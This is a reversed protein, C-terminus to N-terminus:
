DQPGPCGDETEGQGAEGQCGGLAQSAQQAQCDPGDVPTQHGASPFFLMFDHLSHYATDDRFQDCELFWQIYREDEDRRRSLEDQCWLRRCVRHTQFVPTNGKWTTFLQAEQLEQLPADNYCLTCYNITM